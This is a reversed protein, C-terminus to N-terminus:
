AGPEALLRRFFFQLGGKPRLAAPAAVLRAALADLAVSAPSAPALELVPQQRRVAEAVEPDHPVAGAYRLGVHLFRAAVRSLQSFTRTGDADSRAMNVLVDFEQEAYRTALM